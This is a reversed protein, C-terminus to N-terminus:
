LASRRSDGAACRAADPHRIGLSRWSTEQHARRGQGCIL